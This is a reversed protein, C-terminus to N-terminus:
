GLFDNGAGTGDHLMRLADDAKAEFSNINDMSVTALVNKVDININKM